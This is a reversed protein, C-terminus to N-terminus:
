REEEPTGSCVLFGLLYGASAGAATVGIVIFVQLSLPVDSYAFVVARLGYIFGALWGAATLLRKM